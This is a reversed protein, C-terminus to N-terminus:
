DGAEADSFTRQTEGFTREADPEGTDQLRCHEEEIRAEYNLSTRHEALQRAFITEYIQMWHQMQDYSPVIGAHDAVANEIEQHLLHFARQGGRTAIVPFALNTLVDFYEQRLNDEADAVTKRYAIWAASDPDLEGQPATTKTHHGYLTVRSVATFYASRSAFGMKRILDGLTEYEKETLLTYTHRKM